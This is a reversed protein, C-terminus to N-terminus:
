GDGASTTALLRPLFWAVSTFWVRRQSSFCCGRWSVQPTGWVRNEGVHFIFYGVLPQRWVLFPCSRWSFFHFLCHRPRSLLALPVFFLAAWDHYGDGVQGALLSICDGEAIRWWGFSGQFRACGTLMGIAFVSPGGDEADQHTQDLSDTPNKQPLFLSFSRSLCYLQCHYGGRDDPPTNATGGRLFHYIRGHCLAYGPTSTDTHGTSAFFNVGM